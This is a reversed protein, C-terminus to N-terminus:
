TCFFHTVAAASGRVGSSFSCVFSRDASGVGLPSENKFAVFTTTTDHKCCVGVQSLDTGSADPLFLVRVFSTAFCTTTPVKSPFAVWSLLLAIGLSSIVLHLYSSPYIDDDRRLYGPFYIHHIYSKEDNSFTSSYSVSLQM